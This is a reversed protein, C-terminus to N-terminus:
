IFNDFVSKYLDIIQPSVESDALRKQKSIEYNISNIYQVYFDTRSYVENYESLLTNKYLEFVRKRVSEIEIFVQKRDTNGLMEMALEM